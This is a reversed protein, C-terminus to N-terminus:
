SAKISVFVIALIFLIIFVLLHVVIEKPFRSRSLYRDDYLMISIETIQINEKKVAAVIVAPNIFTAVVGTLVAANVPVKFFRNIMGDLQGRPVQATLLPHILPRNCIFVVINYISLAIYLITLLFPVAACGKVYISAIGFAFCIIIAILVVYRYLFLHGGRMSRKNKTNTQYNISDNMNRVVHNYEAPYTKRIFVLVSTDRPEGIELTARQATAVFGNNNTAVDTTSQRYVEVAM